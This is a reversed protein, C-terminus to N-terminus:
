QVFHSRNDSRIEQNCGDTSHPYPPLQGLELTSNNVNTATYSSQPTRHMSQHRIGLLAIPSPANPDFRSTPHYLADRRGDQIHEITSWTIIICLGLLIATQIMMCAIMAWAQGYVSQAPMSLGMRTLWDVTQPLGHLTFGITGIHMSLLLLFYCVEGRPKSIFTLPYWVDLMWPLIVAASTISLEVIPLRSWAVVIPPALPVQQDRPFLPHPDPGPAIPPLNSTRQYNDIALGIAPIAFFLLLAFCIWRPKTLASYKRPFTYPATYSTKSPAPSLFTTSSATTLHAAAM